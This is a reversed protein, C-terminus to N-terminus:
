ARSKAYVIVKGVQKIRDSYRLVSTNTEQSSYKSIGKRVAEILKPIETFAITRNADLSLYLLNTIERRRPHEAM